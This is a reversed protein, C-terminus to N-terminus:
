RALYQGTKPQYRLSPRTLYVAHRVQLSQGLRLRLANAGRQRARDVLQQNRWKYANADYLRGTYGLELPMAAAGAAFPVSFSTGQIATYGSADYMDGNPDLKQTATFIDAGPAVIEPKLAGNINPGRSSFLPAQNATVGDVVERWAPDLAVPREANAALFQAHRGDPLEVDITHPDVFSATGQIVEINNRFLHGEIVDMESQIVQEKRYMLEQISIDQRLYTQIQDAMEQFFTSTTRGCGPCAAHGARLFNPESEPALM